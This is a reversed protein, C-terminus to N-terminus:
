FSYTKLCDFCSRAIKMYGYFRTLKLRLQNLQKKVSFLFFFLNSFFIFKLVHFPITIIDDIM